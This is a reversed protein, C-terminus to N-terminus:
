GGNLIKFAYKMKGTYEIGYGALWRMLKRENFGSESPEPADLDDHYPLKILEQHLDITEQNEKYVQRYRSEEIIKIATKRGIGFIGPLENHTGAMYLVRMWNRLSMGGYEEKFDDYGYLGTQKNAKKSKFFINDHRFLQYMDDDNSAVIIRDYIDTYQDCAAAILDDAEMGTELWLTIGMLDLLEVVMKSNQGLKKGKEPDKAKKRKLKYEPFILSRLYPKSDSCVIIDTTPHASLLTALQTIFGYLGGTSKGAFSLHEHVSYGRHLLNNFDILLLDKM